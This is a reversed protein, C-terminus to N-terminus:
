ALEPALVPELLTRRWGSLAPPWEGTSLLLELQRRSALVGEPLGLAGAQGAVASQLAKVRARQEPDQPLALPVAAEADTLPAAVVAHLDERLQRPAGRHDDLLRDFGRRDPPPNRALAVVLENDIIWSRPRDSIRAQRDRWRLLRCLRAQGTADLTQASRMALHPWPDEEDAAAAAVMRACDEELWALRGSARLRDDLEAHIRHLHLVDDAAYELQRPNLPRRLWDSRTEGKPLSIGCVQEVLKQYGLGAGLGALAAAVQTDFLPSPLAKCGVALAQLDEGASHMVKLTGPDQLLSALVPAMGDALPDVLLIEGPVSLQVLALQPWFTRERVFETDVGVVRHAAWGQLRARLADPSDIWTGTTRSPDTAAM